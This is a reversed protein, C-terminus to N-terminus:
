PHSEVSSKLFLQVFEDFEQESLDSIAWYTMGDRQWSRIQFGQRSSKRVAHVEDSASPWSFVNIPHLRRYYVLAAVPRDVLFDLRGGSLSYGQPSLDPVHPSFDLKGRFWPKVTHLDSSAVDTAHAVQLSRVHGAVVQEAVHDDDSMGVRTMFMGITASAGILLLVGAAIAAFQMAVRRRRPAVPPTTVPPTSLQVRTRLAAPARYYMSPSSVAARLSRLNREQEACEACEALHKEMEVHRVLDLEGDSYPHLLQLVDRCKM